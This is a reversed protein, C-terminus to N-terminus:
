IIALLQFAKFAKGLFGSKQSRKLNLQAARPVCGALATSTSLLALWWWVGGGWSSSGDM